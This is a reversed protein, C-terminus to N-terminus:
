FCWVQSMEVIISVEESPAKASCAGEMECGWNEVKM